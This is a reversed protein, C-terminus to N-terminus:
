LRPVELLGFFLVKVAAPQPTVSFTKRPDAYGSNLKFTEAEIVKSTVAIFQNVDPRSALPAMVPTTCRQLFYSAIINLDTITIAGDTDMDYRKNYKPDGIKTNYSNAANTMDLITVAQDGDIDPPWANVGCFKILIRAWLFSRLIPLVM